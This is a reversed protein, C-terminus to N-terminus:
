LRGERRLGEYLAWAALAKSDRAGERWLEDLRVLRLTIKEGQDRLGTLRGQWDALEARAVRRQHLFLPVFEDCGGASPFMAPILGEEEVDDESSEKAAPPTTKSANPSLALATLDTLADADVRLGTEEAIEKAAAGGFTGSDDLMGAPLEAFALSGAPIRPQITLLVHKDTESYAPVDDPQLILLMGVSGGRLFVSGPLWEEEENTVRAQLKVFGLRGGNGKGDGGFWDVAQVDIRRLVYPAAHFAHQEQAQRALSRQLRSSWNKFPVFSLLADPTLPVHAPLHVPCAPSSNPLTFTSMKQVTTSASTSQTSPLALPRSIHKSIHRIRHSLM